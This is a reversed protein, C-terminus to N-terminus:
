GLELLCAEEPIGKGCYEEARKRLEKVLSRKTLTALELAPILGVAGKDANSL